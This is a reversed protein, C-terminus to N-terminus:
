FRSSFEPHAQQFRYTVSIAIVCLYLLALLDVATCSVKDTSYVPKGTVEFDLQDPM